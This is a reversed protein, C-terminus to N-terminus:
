YALDKLTTMRNKFGAIPDQAFLRRLEVWQPDTLAFEFSIKTTRPMVEYADFKVGRLDLWTVFWLDNTKKM